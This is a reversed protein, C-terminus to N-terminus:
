LLPMKKEKKFEFLKEKQCSSMYDDGEGRRLESQGGTDGERDVELGDRRKRVRVEERPSVFVKDEKLM